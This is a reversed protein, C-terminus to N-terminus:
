SDCVASIGPEFTFVKHAELVSAGQRELIPDFIATIPSYHSTVAVGIRDLDEGCIEHTTPNWPAGLFGLGASTFTRAEPDWNRVMCSPPSPGGTYCNVFVDWSFDDNGEDGPYGLDNARYIWLQHPESTNPAKRIETAAVEIIDDWYSSQQGVQSGVRAAKRTADDMTASTVYAYSFEIIGFVLLLILPMILASEVLVAGRENPREGKRLTTFTVRRRM